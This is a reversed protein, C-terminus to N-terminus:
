RWILPKHFTYGRSFAGTEMCDVFSSMLDYFKDLETDITDDTYRILSVNNEWDAAIVYVEKPRGLESQQCGDVYMAMQLDYRYKDIDWRFRNYDADRATKLEVLLGGDEGGYGDVYGCINLGSRKWELKMQASKVRDFVPGVEADSRIVEALVYAANVQEVTVMHKNEQLGHKRIEALWDKNLNSGWNKTPEPRKDPDYAIFSHDLIPGAEASDINFVITDLLKGAIMQESPEPAPELKYKLFHSPSKAFAKMSSLSLHDSGNQLNEILQQIQETM